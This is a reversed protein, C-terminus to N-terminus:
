SHFLFFFLLFQEFITWNEYLDIVFPIVRIFYSQCIKVNQQLIRLAEGNLVIQSM